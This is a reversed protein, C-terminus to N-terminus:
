SGSREPPPRANARITTRADDDVLQALRVQGTRDKKLGDKRRKGAQKITPPKREDEEDDIRGQNGEKITTRRMRM